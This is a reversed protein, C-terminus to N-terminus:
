KLLNINQPAIRRHPEDYLGLERLLAYEATFPSKRKARRNRPPTAAADKQRESAYKRIPADM